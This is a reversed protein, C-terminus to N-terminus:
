AEGDPRKLRALDAFPNVQTDEIPAAGPPGHALDGPAAGEARPFPPLALALAEALVAALDVSEPLPEATEDEPMEAETELPAAYHELYRRIVPEEIRTTVPALTVSCPQVVTAGLHAELRWDARGEPILAGELRVKRLEILDLSEILTAREQPDPEHRFPTPRDPALRDLRLKLPTAM